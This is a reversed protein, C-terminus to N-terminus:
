GRERKQNEVEMLERGKEEVAEELTGRGEIGDRQEMRDNAAIM